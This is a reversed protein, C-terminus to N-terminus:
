TIRYNTGHRRFDQHYHYMEEKTLEEEWLESSLIEKLWVIPTKPDLIKKISDLEEMLVVESPEQLLDIIVQSTHAPPTTPLPQKVQWEVIEPSTAWNLLKSHGEGLRSLQNWDALQLYTELLKRASEPLHLVHPLRVTFTQRSDSGVLIIRPVEVASLSQYLDVTKQGAM